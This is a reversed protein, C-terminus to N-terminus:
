ANGERLFMARAVQSVEKASLDRLCAHRKLLRHCHSGDKGCPRCWLKMGVPRSEAGQPGFGMDATTPGLVVLARTGVAEALHALGTDNGLYGTSRSLVTAAQRLNWM